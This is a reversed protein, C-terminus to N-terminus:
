QPPPLVPLCVNTLPNWVSGYGCDIPQPAVPPRCVNAVPDWWSGNQCNLPVPAFPRCVNAGPDWWSNPGCDASSVAPSIITVYAMPALAAAAVGGLCRGVGNM